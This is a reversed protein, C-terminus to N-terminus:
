DVEGEEATPGMGPGMHCGREHRKMNSRVSFSKGCGIRPCVFPKAGTHSHEHIKLSSPRSFEKMCSACTYNRGTIARGSLAQASRSPSGPAGHQQPLTDSSHSLGRTHMRPDYPHFGSRPHGTQASQHPLLPRGTRDDSGASLSHHHPIPLPLETSYSRSSSSLAPASTPHSTQQQSTTYYPAPAASVASRPSLDGYRFHQSPASQPYPTTTSQDSVYPPYPSTDIKPRAIVPSTGAPSRQKSENFLAPDIRQIDHKPQMVLPPQMRQDGRQNSNGPPTPPFRSTPSPQSSWSPARNHGSSGARRESRQDSTCANSISLSCAISEAMHKKGPSNQSQTSYALLDSIPPLSPKNSMELPPSPPAQPGFKRKSRSEGSFWTPSRGSGPWWLTRSDFLSSDRQPLSPRSLVEM